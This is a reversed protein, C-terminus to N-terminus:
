AGPLTSISAKLTDGQAEKYSLRSLLWAALVGVGACILLLRENGALVQPGFICLVGAGGAIMQVQKGGGIAIKVIPHFMALAGLVLLAGFIQVPMMSSIRATIEASKDVQAVGVSAAAQELTTERYLMPSPPPTPAAPQQQALMQNTAGVPAARVQFPDAQGPFVYERTIQRSLNQTTPTAPAGPASAGATMGGPLTATAGGGATSMAAKGFLVRRTMACGSALISCAVLLAGVICALIFSRFYDRSM